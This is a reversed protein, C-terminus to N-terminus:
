STPGDASGGSAAEARSSADDIVQRWTTIQEETLGLDGQVAIMTTDWRRGGDPRPTLLVAVTISQEIEGTQTQLDHHRLQVCASFTAQVLEDFRSAVSFCLQRGQGFFFRRHQM